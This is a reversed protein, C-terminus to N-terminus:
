ISFFSLYAMVTLSGTRKAAIISCPFIFYFIDHIEIPM